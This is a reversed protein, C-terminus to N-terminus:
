RLHTMPLVAASHKLARWSDIGKLECFCTAMPNVNFGSANMEPVHLSPDCWVITRMIFQIPVMRDTLGAATTSGQRPLQLVQLLQVQYPHHALM